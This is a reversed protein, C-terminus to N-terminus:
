KEKEWFGSWYTRATKQGDKLVGICRLNRSMGVITGSVEGRLGRLKKAGENSPSVRTGILLKRLLRNINM